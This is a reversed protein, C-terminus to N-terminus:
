EGLITGVLGVPEHVLHSKKCRYSSMKINFWAVPSFVDDLIYKDAYMEYVKGEINLAM